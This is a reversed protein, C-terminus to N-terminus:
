RKVVKLSATGNVVNDALSTLRIQKVRKRKEQLEECYKKILDLDTQPLDASIRSGRTKIESEKMQRAFKIYIEIVKAFVAPMKGQKILEHFSVSGGSTYTDPSWYNPYSSVGFGGDRELYVRYYGAVIGRKLDSEGYQGSEIAFFASILPIDDMPFLIFHDRKREPQSQKPDVMRISPMAFRNEKLQEFELKRNYRARKRPDELVQYAENLKKFREEADPSKNVDPHVQRANKWFASKIDEPSANRSVGLVQYYDEKERM